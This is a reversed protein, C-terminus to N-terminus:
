VLGGIYMLVADTYSCFLVGFGLTESDCKTRFAWILFYVMM